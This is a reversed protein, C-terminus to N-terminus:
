RRITLRPAYWDISQMALREAEKAEAEARAETEKVKEWELRGLCRELIAERGRVDASIFMCNIRSAHGAGACGRMSLLGALASPHWCAEQRRYLTTRRIAHSETM